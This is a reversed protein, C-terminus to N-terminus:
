QPDDLFYGKICIYIPKWTHKSMPDACKGITNFQNIFIVPDTFKTAIMSWVLM